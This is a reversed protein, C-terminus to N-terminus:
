ALRRKLLVAGIAGVAVLVVLVIWPGLLESKDVPVIVGGVPILPTDGALFEDQTLDSDAMFDQEFEGDGESDVQVRVGEEGQSLADWDITYQHTADASTPIDIATFTTAESDEISAIDLGYTGEDTGLVQYRYTDAPSFIEVIEDQQDYISNPIEEKVEGNVLGTVRNQSDYVRLEGPSRKGVSIWPTLRLNETGPVGIQTAVALEGDNGLNNPPHGIADGNDDLWLHWWDGPWANTIYADKVNLGKNLNGWFRDSSHYWGGLGLLSKREEDDHTATIIIRNNGSISDSVYDLTIFSGSYCSGIVILMLNDHFAELM